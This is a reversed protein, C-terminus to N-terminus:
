SAETTAVQNNLFDVYMQLIKQAALPGRARSWLDRDVPLIRSEQFATLNKYIPHDDWRGADGYVFLMDPDLEALSEITIKAVETQSESASPPGKFLYDAGVETFLSGIFSGMTWTSFEDEFAGVVLVGPQGSQKEKVRALSDSLQAELVKLEDDRGTIRAFVRTMERVEDLSDDTLAITPALGELQQRIMKHRDPNAIILDPQLSLIVELNPQKREGVFLPTKQDPLTSALYAPVEKDNTGAFGAVPQGLASMADLFPLDLVVINQPKLPVDTSGWAHEVRVTPGEPSVSQIPGSAQCGSLVLAVTALFGALGAVGLPRRWATLPYFLLVSFFCGAGMLVVGAGPAVREAVAGVLLGGVPIIGRDMLALGLMQGAKERPVIDQYLMRSCSRYAQGYYGVAFLVVAASYFGQAFCLGLLSLGFWLAYKRTNNWTSVGPKLSLGSSAALAGAASVALLTGFAQSGLGLMDETIMPLMATFPFGFFMVPVALLLLRKLEPFEAFTERFSVKVHSKKLKKGIGLDEGPMTQLAVTYAVSVLAAALFTSLSGVSALMVGGLVPGIIRGLNMVSANQAVASKLREGTFIHCLLANRWPGEAATVVARVLVLLAVSWFPLGAYLALGILAILAANAVSNWLNLRRRDLRDAMVGAPVSLFLNPLLRCANIVALLLPSETEVFVAWNLAVTFLWEGIRAALFGANFRFLANKVSFNPLGLPTYEPM